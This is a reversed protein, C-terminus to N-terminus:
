VSLVLVDLMLDRALVRANDVSPKMMSRGRLAAKIYVWVDVVCRTEVLLQPPFLLHHPLTLYPLRPDTTFVGRLREPIPRTRLPDWLKVQVGRPVWKGVGSPHFASNAQHRYIALVHFELRPGYVNHALVSSVTQNIITM